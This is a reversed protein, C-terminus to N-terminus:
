YTPLNSSQYTLLNISYTPLNIPEQQYPPQYTPPLNTSQYLIPLYTSHYYIPLYYLYYIPLNISEYSTFIGTLGSAWGRSVAIIM